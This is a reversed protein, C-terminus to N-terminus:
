YSIQAHSGGGLSIRSVQRLLTQLCLDLEGNPDSQLLEPASREDMWRRSLRLVISESDEVELDLGDFTDDLTDDERPLQYSKEYGSDIDSPLQQRRSPGATPAQTFFSERQEDENDSNDDFFNSAM